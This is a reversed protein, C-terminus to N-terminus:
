VAVAPHHAVYGGAKMTGRFDADSSVRWETVRGFLDHRFGLTALYSDAVNGWIWGGRVRRNEVFPLSDLFRRAAPISDACGDMAERWEVATASSIGFASMLTSVSPKNM